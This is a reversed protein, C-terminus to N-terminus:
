SNELVQTVWLLVEQIWIMDEQDYFEISSNMIIRGFNPIVAIGFVSIASIM